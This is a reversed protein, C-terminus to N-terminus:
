ILGKKILYKFIWSAINFRKQWTMSPYNGYMTARCCYMPKLNLRLLLATHLFSFYRFKILSFSYFNCIHSIQLDRWSSGQRRRWYISWMRLCWSHCQCQCFAAVKIYLWSLSLYLLFLFQSLGSKIYNQNGKKEKRKKKKQIIWDWAVNTFQRYTALNVIRCEFVYIFNWNNMILM